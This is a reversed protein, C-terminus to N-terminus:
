LVYTSASGGSNRTRPALSRRARLKVEEQTSKISQGRRSANERRQGPLMEGHTLPKSASVSQGKVVDSQVGLECLLAKVRKLTTYPACSGSFTKELREWHKALLQALEEEHGKPKTCIGIICDSPVIRGSRLFTIKAKAPKGVRPLLVIPGEMAVNDASVIRFPGELKGGKLNTTHAFPVGSEIKKARYVPLRGCQIHASYEQARLPQNSGKGQAEARVSRRRFKMVTVSVAHAEFAARHLEGVQSVAFKDRIAAMLASDRESTLVSAPLIAVIEGGKRLYPLARAVFVLAKSGALSAGMFTVRHRSSGRCSFPPNLLVVDCKGILSGKGRQNLPKDMFDHTAVACGRIRRRLRLTTAQKIDSGFLAAEPWRDRAALLLAGDGAAFDAVLKPKRLSSSDVMLKALSSPTYIEDM